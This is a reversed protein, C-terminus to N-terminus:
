PFLNRPSAAHDLSVLVAAGSSLLSGRLVQQPGQPRVHQGSLLLCVATWEAPRLCVLFGPSRGVLSEASKLIQAANLHFEM